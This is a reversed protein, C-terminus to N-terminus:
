AHVIKLLMSEMTLGPGFAFSLVNKQDDAPLLRNAVEKLVFLVTPSSMNGYKRLVEYAPANQDRSIHLESEIVELIKKGGPHIAFYSVQALQHDIKKLLRETLQHIGSQIIRPVYASLRMEFGWNGISWAMDTEGEPALDCYFSVPTFNLGPRPKGEVLVAAAGDAFLANALINDETPEKQFHISCLEVCVVLVRATPQTECFQDALKLANFAAYCGMFNICVRQVDTRLGLVKVLDIDLGPAYMGTCSVVVLHTVSEPAVEPRKRWIEQIALESIVVAHKQFVQMRQQTTPFPELNDSPPYFSRESSRGYDGIVSHRTEIGSARFITRLKRGAPEPLAMAEVMFEAIENQTHVHRPNATGLATIYSM